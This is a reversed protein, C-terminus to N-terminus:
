ARPDDVGHRYLIRLDNAPLFINGCSGLMCPWRIRRSPSLHFTSYQSIKLKRLVHERGYEKDKETRRRFLTFLLDIVGNRFENHVDQVMMGYSMITNQMGCETDVRPKDLPDRAEMEKHPCSGPRSGKGRKGPAAQDTVILWWRVPNMDRTLRTRTCKRM